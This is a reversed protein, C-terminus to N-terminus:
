ATGDRVQAIHSVAEYSFVAIEPGPSLDGVQLKILLIYDDIINIGSPFLQASDNSIVNLGTNVSRDVYAGQDAIVTQDSRSRQRM